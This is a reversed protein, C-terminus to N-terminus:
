VPVRLHYSAGGDASYSLTGNLQEALLNLLELGFNESGDQLVTEPIGKGNDRYTLNLSGSELKCSVEIRAHDQGDFAHKMSNSMLENVVIGLSTLVSAEVVDSSIDIRMEPAVTMHYTSISNEILPVLFSDLALEAHHEARYLKDYLLMMSQLRGAADQLLSEAESNHTSHAQLNLLSQVMAMNNKIRHHAEKLVLEKAKLLDRVEQRSKLLEERSRVANTIDVAIEMRVVRGDGWQIARDMCDYWRGNHSNQIEYRHVGNPQGAADVLRSNVCMECPGSEGVKLAKWCTHGEIDGFAERCHSNIYLVEYNQMDAVYVVAPISDLVTLVQEHAARQAQAVTERLHFSSLMHAFSTLLIRHTDSCTPHFQTWDLGVFGYCHEDAVLPVTLVSGINQSLLLSRVRGEPLAEVNAIWIERGRRHADVWDPIEELRIGQLEDKHASVGPACWEHTNSTTGAEFNYEFCYARDAGIFGGVVALAEGIVAAAESSSLHIFLSGLSSLVRQLRGHEAHQRMRAAHLDLASQVSAVLVADGTSKQIHGYAPVGQVCDLMQPDAYSSLFVVPLDRVALIKRAAEGGNMGHDLQIDMLVLDIEDHTSVKSVADPGNGATHVQYGARELATKAKQCILQEDEVVLVAHGHKKNFISEISMIEGGM